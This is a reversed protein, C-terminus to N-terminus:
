MIEYRVNDATYKAKSEEAVTCRMYLESITEVLQQAVYTCRQSPEVLQQVSYIHSESTTRRATTCHIYLEQDRMPIAEVRVRDVHGIHAHVGYMRLLFYSYAQRGVRVTCLAYVWELWGFKQYLLLVRRKHIEASEQLNWHIETSELPNWYIRASEM